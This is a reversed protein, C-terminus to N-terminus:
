NVKTIGVVGSGLSMIRIENMGPNLNLNCIDATCYGTSTSNTIQFRTVFFVAESRGQRTDYTFVLDENNAIYASRINEPINVNITTWSERGLSYMENARGIITGGIQDLQGSVIQDTTLRSQSLFLYSAPIIMLLAIGIISLFEIASQGKKKKKFKTGAMLGASVEM